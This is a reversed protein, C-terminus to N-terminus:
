VDKAAEKHPDATLLRFRISCRITAGKKVNSVAVAQLCMCVGGFTSPKLSFFFFLDHEFDLDIHSRSTGTEQEM